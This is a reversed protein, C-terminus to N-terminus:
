KCLQRAFTAGFLLSNMLLIVFTAWLCGAGQWVNPQQYHRRVSVAWPVFVVLSCLLAFAIGISIHLRPVLTTMFDVEFPFVMIAIALLFAISALWDIKKM